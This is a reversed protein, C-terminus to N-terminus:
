RRPTFSGIYNNFKNKNKDELYDVSYKSDGVYIDVSETNIDFTIDKASNQTITNYDSYYHIHESPAEGLVIIQPNLVELIEKPIRGSERGHHPAFLVDIEEFEVEDKIHELYDTELDGMWMFKARGNYLIIPSINNPSEGKKTEALAEQFYKNDRDPWLIILGSSKRQDEDEERSNRNMWKRSCGKYLFFAKDQDDRLKCYRLFSATKDMKSVDNKVCYFNVIRWKDDLLELGHIHDEDPHTSIFRHIGKYMSERKIEKIIEEANNDDLNCDIMSFNDSEHKIYYTDGNGVSFSKVISM